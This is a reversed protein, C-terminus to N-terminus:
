SVGLPVHCLDMYYRLPTWIYDPWRPSLNPSYNLHIEPGHFLYPRRDIGLYFNDRSIPVEKQTGEDPQSLALPETDLIHLVHSGMRWVYLFLPSISAMSIIWWTSAVDPRTRLPIVAVATGCSGVGASIRLVLEMQLSAAVLPVFFIVAALIFIVMQPTRPQLDSSKRSYYRLSNPDERLDDALWPRNLDHLHGNLYHTVHLDKVFSASLVGDGLSMARHLHQPTGEKSNVYRNPVRHERDANGDHAFVSPALCEQDLARRVVPLTHPSDDNTFLSNATLLPALKGVIGNLDPSTSYASECGRPMGTCSEQHHTDCTARIAPGSKIDGLGDRARCFCNIVDVLSTHCENGRVQRMTDADCSFIHTNELTRFRYSHLVNGHETVLSQSTMSEPTALGGVIEPFNLNTLIRDILLAAPSMAKLRTQCGHAVTAYSRKILTFKGALHYGIMSLLYDSLESPISMRHFNKRLGFAQAVSQNTQQFAEPLRLGVTVTVPEVAVPDNDKVLREKVTM